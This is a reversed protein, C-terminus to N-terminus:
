NGSYTETAVELVSISSDSILSSFTSSGSENTLISGISFSIRSGAAASSEALILGSVSIQSKSDIISMSSSRTSFVLVESKVSNM